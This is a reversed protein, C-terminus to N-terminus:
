VGGENEKIWGVKWGRFNGGCKVVDCVCEREGLGEFGVDGGVWELELGVVRGGVVGEGWGVIGGEGRGGDGEDGIVGVGMGM